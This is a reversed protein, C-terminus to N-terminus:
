IKIKLSRALPLLEQPDAQFFDHNFLIVSLDPILFRAWCRELMDIEQDTFRQRRHGSSDLRERHRYAIAHTLAGRELGKGDDNRALYRHAMESTTYCLAKGDETVIFDGITQFRTGYPINLRQGNAGLEGRIRHHAIYEM